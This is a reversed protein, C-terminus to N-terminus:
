LCGMFFLLPSNSLPVSSRTSLTPVFSIFSMLDVVTLGFLDLLAVPDRFQCYMNRCIVQLLRGFFHLM